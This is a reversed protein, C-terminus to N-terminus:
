LNPDVPQSGWDPITITFHGDYFEIKMAVTAENKGDVTISNAAMFAKLDVTHLQTGDQKEISVVIANDDAFRLTQFLAQSVNPRDSWTVTPYYTTAYPQADGMLMDYQPMLSSLKVVPWSAPDNEFGVGSVYVEMNIHAGKHPIDGTVKVASNGPLTATSPITVDLTGFYLHDNTAIRGQPTTGFAPAHVRGASLSSCLIETDAFANAWSVIRYQGEPLYLGTGQYTLLDAKEVTRTLILQGSKSDFVYLTVRDIMKRFMTADKTDGEYSFTLEMNVAPPCDSMDERICGSLATALLLM